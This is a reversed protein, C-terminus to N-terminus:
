GDFKSFIHLGKNQRQSLSQITAVPAKKGVKIETIIKKEYCMEIANTRIKELFEQLTNLDEDSIGDLLKQVLTSSVRACNQYYKEGKATIVLSYAHRYEPNMVLTVLGSKEMREVVRTVGNVHRDIRDAIQILTPSAPSFKVVMLIAYQQPSLGLSAFQKEECRALSSSTQHLTMWAQKRPNKYVFKVPM